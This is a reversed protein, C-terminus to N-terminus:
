VCCLECKNIYTEGPKRLNTKIIPRPIRERRNLLPVHFSTTFHGINPSAIKEM